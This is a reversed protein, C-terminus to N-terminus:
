KKEKIFIMAFFDIICGLIFYQILGLVPAVFYTFKTLKLMKIVDGTMFTSPFGLITLFPWLFGQGQAQKLVITLIFVAVVLILYAEPYLFKFQIKRAVSGFLSLSLIIIAILFGAMPLILRGTEVKM